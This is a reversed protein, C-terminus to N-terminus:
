CRLNQLMLHVRLPGCAPKGPPAGSRAIPPLIWLSPFFSALPLDDPSWDGSGAKSDLQSSSDRIAGACICSVAENQTPGPTRSDDDPRNTEECQDTCCGLSEARCLQPCAVLLVVLFLSVVKKV